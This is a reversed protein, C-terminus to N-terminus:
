VRERCSARGIQEVIGAWSDYQAETILGAAVLVALVAAVVFYAARRVAPQSLKSM